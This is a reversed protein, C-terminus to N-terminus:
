KKDLTRAKLEAPAVWPKTSYTSVYIDSWKSPISQVPVPTSKEKPKQFKQTLSLIFVKLQDWNAALISLMTMLAVVYFVMSVTKTLLIPVFGWVTTISMDPWISIPPAREEEVIGAGAAMKFTSLQVDWGVAISLTGSCTLATTASVTQDLFHAHGVTTNIRQTFGGGPSSLTSSVNTHSVFCYAYEDAQSLTGSSGSSPATSTGCGAPCGAVAAEVNTDLAAANALGSVEVAVGELVTNTNSNLTWTISTVGAPVNYLVCTANFLVSATNWQTVKVNTFTDGNSDTISATQSCDHSSGNLNNTNWFLSTIITDGASTATISIVCTAVNAQCAAAGQVRQVVSIAAKSPSAFLFVIPILWFLKKM